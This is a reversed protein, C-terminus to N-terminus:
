NSLFFHFMKLKRRVMGGWRDFRVAFGKETDKFNERVDKCKKKSEDEGGQEIPIPFVLSKM